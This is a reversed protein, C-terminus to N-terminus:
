SGITIWHDLKSHWFRQYLIMGNSVMAACYSFSSRSLMLVKASVLMHFSNAVDENLHFYINSFKDFESFDDKTGESIIAISPNHSESNKIFQDLQKVYFLNPVYRFSEDKMHLHVDGRRIHIALDYTPVIPKFTSNYLLKIEDLVNATYYMSPRKSSHIRKIYEYCKVDIKKELQWFKQKKEWWKDSILGTFNNMYLPDLGFQITSFPTHIYHISLKRALALGSLCAQYQAGFGDKKGAITIAKM